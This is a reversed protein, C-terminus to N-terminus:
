ANATWEGGVTTSNGAAPATLTITAGARLAMDYVASACAYLAFGDTLTVPSSTDATGWDTKQQSTFATFTAQYADLQAQGNKTLEGVILSNWRYGLATKLEGRLVLGLRALSRQVDGLTNRVAMQNVTQPNSPTAYKRVIGRKDFVMMQGLRGSASGSLLPAIVKAM